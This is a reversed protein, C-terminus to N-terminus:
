FQIAAVKWTSQWSETYTTPLREFALYQNWAKSSSKWNCPGSCIRAQGRQIVEKFSENVGQYTSQNCNIEM